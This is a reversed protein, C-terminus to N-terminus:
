KVLDFETVICILKQRGKLMLRKQYRVHLLM